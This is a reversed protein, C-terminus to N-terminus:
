SIEKGSKKSVRVYKGGVMKKGIRSRKGTSPDVIMVNSVHIPLTKEVIQGKQGSKQPRQHKKKINVGAIVVMDREPLAKIVKGTKGKDKGAIVMVNDNKKIKM